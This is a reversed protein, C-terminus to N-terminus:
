WKSMEEESNEKNCISKSALKEEAWSKMREAKVEDNVNLFRVTSLDICGYLWWKPTDTETKPDLVFDLIYIFVGSGHIGGNRNKIVPRRFFCSSIFFCCARRGGHRSVNRLSGRVWRGGRKCADEELVGGGAIFAVDVVNEARIRGVGM